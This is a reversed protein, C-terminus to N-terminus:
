TGLDYKKLASNFMDKDFILNILKQTKADLKSPQMDKSTEVTEDEEPDQSSTDMELLDYKKDKKKFNSRDDWSNGTKDKFKKEFLKIANEELGCYVLGNNVGVEGVRGYRNWLYLCDTNKMLVLQIIYFKNNNAGINTQNLTCDYDKYVEYNTCVPINKDPVCRKAKNDKKAEEKLKSVINDKTM